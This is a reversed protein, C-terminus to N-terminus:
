VTAAWTEIYDKVIGKTEESMIKRSASFLKRATKKLQKYRAKEEDDSYSSFYFVMSSNVLHRNFLHYNMDLFARILAFNMNLHAVEKESAIFAQQSFITAHTYHCLEKWLKKMRVMSPKSIKNFVERSLPIDEGNKWKTILRSNNSVICYKGILLYEFAHRLIIRASGYHGNLTLSFAGYISLLGKFFGSLVIPTTENTAGIGRRLTWSILDFLELEIEFAQNISRINGSFKKEIFESDGIFYKNIYSM